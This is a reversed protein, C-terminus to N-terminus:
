IGFVRKANKALIKDKDEADIKLKGVMSIAMSYTTIPYDTGFIVKDAGGAYYIARSLREALSNSYPEVYKSGGVIMGSIDAYVNGHKYILEAVDEIWPNGFHCVVITLENRKNALSDLTLPHAHKLSGKADATDGTHFMVPLNNAEAYDYLPDFIPNGAFVREYGLMVKFGKVLGRHSRALKLSNRVQLATPEVTLVPLLRGRSKACFELVSTNPLPTGKGVISSLLLGHVVGNEEMLRLLESLTYRLGNHRAYVNLRDDKRESLHIHADVIEPM